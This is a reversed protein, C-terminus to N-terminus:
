NFPPLFCHRLLCIKFRLLNEFTINDKKDRSIKRKVHRGEEQVLIM